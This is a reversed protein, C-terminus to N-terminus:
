QSSKRPKNQIERFMARESRKKTQKKPPPHPQPGSRLLNAVEQINEVQSYLRECYLHKESIMAQTKGERCQTLM